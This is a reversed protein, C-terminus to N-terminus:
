AKPAPKKTTGTGSSESKAAEKKSETAAAKKESGSKKGSADKDASKTTSSSDAATEATGSDANGSGEGVGNKKKGTKFDTEYWGSGKLRFSSASVLKVLSDKGCEPCEILPPDSIKQLKELEAGCSACRYEYIPVRKKGWSFRQRSTVGPPAGGKVSSCFAACQLKIGNEGACTICSAVPFKRTTGFLFLEAPCTRFAIEHAVEAASFHKVFINSSTKSESIFVGV